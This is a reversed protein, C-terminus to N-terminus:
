GVVLSVPTAVGGVTASWCGDFDAVAILRMAVAASDIFDEVDVSEVAVALIAVHGNITYTASALVSIRVILIKHLTYACVRATDVLMQDISLASAQGSKDDDLVNALSTGSVLCVERLIVGASAGESVSEKL